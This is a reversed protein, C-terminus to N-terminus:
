NKVIQYPGWGLPKTTSVPDTLLETATLDKWAHQPFPSWFLEGYQGTYFGPIGTWVVSTEDAATYSLTRNLYYRNVPTEPDNAVLFAYESDSATLPEGDSWKLDDLLKYTLSLQKMILPSEGDWTVACSEDMCGAPFVTTGELLTAVNGDADQVMDGANLEVESLVADGSEVDPIKELIVPQSEFGVTDIPGDYIAELISWMSRNDSGYSYLTQPEYAVCIVLSRDPVPTPSATPVIPTPSVVTPTADAVDIVPTSCASLLVSGLIIGIALQKLKNKRLAAERM